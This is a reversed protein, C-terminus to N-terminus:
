PLPFPWTNVSTTFINAWSIASAAAGANGTTTDGSQTINGSNMGALYSNDGSGAGAEAVTEQGALGGNVVMVDCECDWWGWSWVGTDFQNAVASSEALAGANGTTTDGSQTISGGNLGATYSNGGTSAGAGAFTGQLAAGGNIVVVSAFAPVAMGLLLAGAGILSAIKKM